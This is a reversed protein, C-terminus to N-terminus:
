ALLYTEQKTPKFYGLPPFILFTCLNTTPVYPLKQANRKTHQWNAKVILKEWKWKWSSSRWLFENSGRAWCRSQHGQIETPFSFTSGPILGRKPSSTADLWCPQFTARSRRTGMLFELEAPLLGACALWSEFSQAHPHYMFRSYKNTIKKFDNKSKRELTWTVLRFSHKGYEALPLYGRWRCRLLNHGIPPPTM